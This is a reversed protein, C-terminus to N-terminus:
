VYQMYRNLKQKSKAHDQAYAIMCSFSCVFAKVKIGNNINKVLGLVDKCVLTCHFCHIDDRLRILMDGLDSM